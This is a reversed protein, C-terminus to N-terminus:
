WPSAPQCCARVDWRLTLRYSICSPLPSPGLPHFVALHVDSLTLSVRVQESFLALLLHALPEHVCFNMYEKKKFKYTKTVSRYIFWIVRQRLIRWEFSCVSLCVVSDKWKPMKRKDLNALIGQGGQLPPLQSAMRGDAREGSNSWRDASLVGEKWARQWWSVLEVLSARDGDVDWKDSGSQFDSGDGAPIVPCYFAVSMNRCKVSEFLRKIHVKNWIGTSRDWWLHICRVNQSFISTNRCLHRRGASM